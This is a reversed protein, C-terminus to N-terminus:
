TATAAKVALGKEVSRAWLEPDYLTQTRVMSFALRHARHGVAILAVLAPKGSLILRQYYAAFDPEHKRVGRGMTIIAYRLEVSGERSIRVRSAKKGASEYSTPSLGSYRYAADANAFRGPDGLAAGYYSAATVAVGPISTLVGAPTFPLVAALQRDCEAIEVEITELLAMDRAVFAQAARRQGEPVHLAQRAAEVVQDAKPARMKVGRNVVFTRLRKPGLRVVREPDCIHAMIVRLSRQNLGHSYCGTLHPFALDVQAHVQSVLRRRAEVKRRRQGAWGVQTAMALSRQIPTHGLGDILVEAMALCDQIDTKVRRQGIRGRADKVIAPNLEVVDFGSGELRTVLARHYHGAAEVGFRVSGADVSKAYVDTIALLESVGCETLEFAFPAVVVDHCHNAILAMASRKGVDVPVVLCRERDLGRIRSMYEVQSRSVVLM